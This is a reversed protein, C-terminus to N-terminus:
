IVTANGSDQELITRIAISSMSSQVTSYIMGVKIFKLFYISLKNYPHACYSINYLHSLTQTCDLQCIDM